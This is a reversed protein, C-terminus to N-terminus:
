EDFNPTFDIFKVINLVKEAFLFKGDKQNPKDYRVAFHKKGEKEYFGIM